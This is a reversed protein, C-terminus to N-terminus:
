FLMVPDWGYDQYSEIDLCNELVYMRTFAKRAADADDAEKFFRDALGDYGECFKRISEENGAGDESKVYDTVVYRGYMEKMHMVGPQRSGSEGKLVKGDAKYGDVNFFGFVKVDEPDADDVHLIRPSPIQILGAEFLQEAETLIEECAAATVRDTGGYLFVPADEGVPTGSEVAASEISLSDFAFGFPSDASEALMMTFDYVTKGNGDGFGLKGKVTGNEASEAEIFPSVDGWDGRYLVINNQETEQASVLAAAETPDMRIANVLLDEAERTGLTDSAADRERAGTYAGSEALAFGLFIQRSAANLSGSEYVSGADPIFAGGFIAYWVDKALEKAAEPTGPEAKVEPAATTTEAQTTEAATTEAATTAAATTAAATTEPAVTTAAATAAATTEAPKKGCGTVMGAALVAAAACALIRRCTERKVTRKM